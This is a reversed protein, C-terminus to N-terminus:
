QRILEAQLHARYDGQTVALEQAYGLRLEGGPGSILAYLRREGSFQTATPSFGVARTAFEWRNDGAVGAFVEVAGAAATTVLELDNEDEGVRLFGHERFAPRIVADDHDILWTHSSYALFPRGDHAFSARQAYRFEIGDAPQVGTGAGAWVGVLPLVSLLGENIEPGQRLDTTDIIAPVIV